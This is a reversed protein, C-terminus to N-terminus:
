NLKCNFTEYFDLTILYLLGRRSPLLAAFAPVTTPCDNLNAVLANGSCGLTKFFLVIECYVSIAMHIYSNIKIVMCEGKVCFKNLGCPTGDPFSSVARIFGSFAVQCWVKCPSEVDAGSQLIVYLTFM